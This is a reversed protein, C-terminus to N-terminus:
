LLYGNNDLPAARCVEAYRTDEADSCARTIDTESTYLLHVWIGVVDYCTEKSHDPVASCFRNGEMVGRQDTVVLAVGRYCESQYLSEVGQCISVSKNYDAFVAISRHRGIGLYCYRTFKDPIIQDCKYLGDDGTNVSSIHSTHYFYCPPAYKEEVINCPYFFDDQRFDGRSEVNEMFVGKACTTQYLKTAFEDCREVALTINYDYSQALGHGVAHVCELLDGEAWERREPEACIGKIDLKAPDRDNLYNQKAMHAEVVGHYAAGGCERSSIAFAEGTTGTYGYMFMGLHHAIPHCYITMTGYMALLNQYVSIIANKEERLALSQIEGSVCDHNRNCKNVIQEAKLAGPFTEANGWSFFVGTIFMWTVIVVGVSIGALIIGSKLKQNNM